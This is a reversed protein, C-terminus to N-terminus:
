SVDVNGIIRNLEIEEMPIKQLSDITSIPEIQPAVPPTPQSPQPPPPPPQISQSLLQSSEQQQDQQLSDDIVFQEDYRSLKRRRPKMPQLLTSQTAQTSSSIEQQIAMSGNGQEIDNNDNDIPKIKQRYQQQQASLRTMMEATSLNTSQTASVLRSDMPYAKSHVPSTQTTPVQQVGTNTKDSSIAALFETEIM